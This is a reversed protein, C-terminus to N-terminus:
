AALAARLRAKKMSKASTARVAAALASENNMNKKRLEKQKRLILACHFRRQKALRSCGKEHVLHDIGLFNEIQLTNAELLRNLTEADQYDGTSHKLILDHVHKGDKAANRQFIKRDSSTYSKNSEYRQDLDYVCM